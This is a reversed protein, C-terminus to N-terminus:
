INTIMMDDQVMEQPFVLDSWQLMFALHGGLSVFPLTSIMDDFMSVVLLNVFKEQSM